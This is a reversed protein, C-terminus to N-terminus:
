FHGSYEFYTKNLFINGTLECNENIRDTVSCKLSSAISYVWCLYSDGQDHVTRSINSGDITGLEDSNITKQGYSQFDYNSFLYVQTM